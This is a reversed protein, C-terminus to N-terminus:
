ISLGGDIVFSQGTIYKARDSILFACLDAIEEPKGFRKMPIRAISEARFKEDFGATMETEIFGPAVANVRINKGALELAAARTMADLAGKSACYSSQGIGGKIGFVSSINIIAGGKRALPVIASQMIRMASFLNTEVVNEWKAPDAAFLPEPATIGICNVLADIGGFARIEAKVTKAINDRDNIDLQFLKAGLTELEPKMTRYSGLVNAGEDIFLKGCAYGIGGSIGTVLVKKGELLGM